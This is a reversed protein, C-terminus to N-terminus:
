QARHSDPTAIGDDGNVGERNGTMVEGVRFEAGFRDGTRAAGRGDFRDLVVDDCGDSEPELAGRGDFRDLVVDDCGDSEPELADIFWGRLDARGTMGDRLARSFVAALNAMSSGRAVDESGPHSSASNQSSIACKEA